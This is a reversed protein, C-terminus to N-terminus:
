QRTHEWRVDQQRQDNRMETSTVARVPLRHPPNRSARCLRPITIAVAHNLGRCPEKALLLKPYVPPDGAQNAEPLRRKNEM